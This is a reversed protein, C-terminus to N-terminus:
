ATLACMSTAIDWETDSHWLLLQLPNPLKAVFNTAMVVDLIYGLFFTARIMQLEIGVMHHLSQSFRDLSDQSVEARFSFTRYTVINTAM